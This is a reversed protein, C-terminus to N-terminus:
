VTRHCTHIQIYVNDKYVCACRKFYLWPRVTCLKIDLKKHVITALNYIGKLYIKLPWM